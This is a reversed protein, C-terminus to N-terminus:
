PMFIYDWAGNAEITLDVTTGDSAIRTFSNNGDDRKQFFAGPNLDEAGSDFVFKGSGFVDEIFKAQAEVSDLLFWADPGTGLHSQWDYPSNMWGIIELGQYITSQGIYHAGGFQCQWVHVCEHVITSIPPAAAYITFGITYARGDVGALIGMPGDAVRIAFYLLSNGFIPQLAAIEEKTLKRKKGEVGITTQVFDVGNILILIAIGVVEFFADKLLDWADSLAQLLVDTNGILLLLLGAVLTVIVCVVRYLWRVVIEVVWEAVKVMVTVLWCVLRNLCLMWWNCPENRCREEQEEVWREIPRQIEEETKFQQVRCSTAM